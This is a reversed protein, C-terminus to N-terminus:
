LVCHLNRWSMFASVMQARGQEVGFAESSACGSKCPALVQLSAGRVAGTAAGDKGCCLGEVSCESNLHGFGRRWM